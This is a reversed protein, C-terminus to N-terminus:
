YWSEIGQINNSKPQYKIYVNYKQGVSHRSRIIAIIIKSSAYNLCEKHIRIEVKGNKLYERYLKSSTEDPVLRTLSKIIKLYM